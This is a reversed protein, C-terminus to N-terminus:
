QALRPFSDVGTCPVSPNRIRFCLSLLLLLSVYFHLTSSSFIFSITTTITITTSSSTTTSIATDASVEMVILPLGFKLFFPHFFNYGITIKLFYSTFLTCCIFSLLNILSNITLNLVVQVEEWWALRHCKLINMIQAPVQVTSTKQQTELHVSVQIMCQSGTHSLSAWHWSLAQPTWLGIFETVSPCRLTMWESIQFFLYLGGKTLNSTATFCYYFPLFMPNDTVTYRM